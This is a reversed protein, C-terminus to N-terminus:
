PALKSTQWFPHHLAWEASGKHAADTAIVDVLARASDVRRRLLRVINTSSSTIVDATIVKTGGIQQGQLKKHHAAILV